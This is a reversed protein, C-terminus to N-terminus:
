GLLALGATRALVPALDRAQESSVWFGDLPPRSGRGGIEFRGTITLGRLDVSVADTFRLDLEDVTCDDFRVRKLVTSPLDLTGFSCREFVVDSLTASRLDAFGIRVGTIRVSSLDSDSLDLSGVRGGALEVDRLSSDNGRWTLVDVDSVLVESFRAAEANVTQARLDPLACETFSGRQVVVERPSGFTVREQEFEEDVSEADGDRLRLERLTVPSVRPSELGRARAM